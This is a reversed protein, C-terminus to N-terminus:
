TAAPADQVTKGSQNAAEMQEYMIETLREEGDKLQKALKMMATPLNVLLESIRKSPILKHHAAIPLGMTLVCLFLGIISGTGKIANLIDERWSDHKVLVAKLQSCFAPMQVMIAFADYRDVMALMMVAKMIQKRIFDVCQEAEAQAKAEKASAAKTTSSRSVSTLPRCQPHFKPVRGRAGPERIIPEDCTPCIPTGTKVDKDPKDLSPPLDLVETYTEESPPLEAWSENLSAESLPPNEVMTM